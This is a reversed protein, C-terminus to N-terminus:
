RTTRTYIVYTGAMWDPLGRKERDFGAWVFGLGMLLCSVLFGLCRLLGRWWEPVEGYVNIVRMRLVHLGPTAGTTSMFLLGYLMALGLGLGLAGYLLGGGQLVMELVTEFRVERMPPPSVGTVWLALWGTLALVPLLIVADLATALLRRWFGAVNVTQGHHEPM